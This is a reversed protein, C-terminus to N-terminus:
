YKPGRSNKSFSFKSARAGTRSRQFKPIPSRFDNRVKPKKVKETQDFFFEVSWGVTYVTYSDYCLQNSCPYLYNRLYKNQPTRIIKDELFKLCPGNCGTKSHM